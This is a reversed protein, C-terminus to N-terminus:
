PPDGIVVKPGSLPGEYCDTWFSFQHKAATKKVVFVERRHPPIAVSSTDASSYGVFLGKLVSVVVTDPLTNSIAIEDGPYAFVEDLERARDLDFLGCKVESTTAIYVDTRPPPPPSSGSCAALFGPALFGLAVQCLRFRCKTFV